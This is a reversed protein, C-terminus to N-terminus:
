YLKGLPGLDLNLDEDSLGLQKQIWRIEEAQRMLTEGLREIQQETLSGGDIRHMAQREMLEHLLKVLVIVLQALGKRLKEDGMDVRPPSVIEADTPAPERVPEDQRSAAVPGGEGAQPPSLAHRAVGAPSNEQGPRSEPAERQTRAEPLPAPPVSFAAASGSSAGLPIVAGHTRATEVSSLFVRLALFVLDVEAVSIILDGQAVVGTTLLRDLAECLSVDGKGRETLTNKM